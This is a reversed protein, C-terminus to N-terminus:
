VKTRLYFHAWGAFIFPSTLLTGIGTTGGLASIFIYILDLVIAPGLHGCVHQWGKGFAEFIGCREDILYYFGLTLVMLAFIDVPLLLIWGIIILVILLINLVIFLLGFVFWYLFSDLWHSFGEFIDSIEGKEGRNTKLALRVMGAYLGPITILFFSLFFVIVFGLIYPVANDIMVKWAVNLNEGFDFSKTDTGAGSIATSSYSGQYGERGIVAKASHEEAGATGVPNGCRACYAAEEPNDYGCSACKLM